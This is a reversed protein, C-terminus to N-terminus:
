AKRWIKESAQSPTNESGDNSSYTWNNNWTNINAAVVKEENTDKDIVYTYNAAEQTLMNRNTPDDVKSGMGYGDLDNTYESITYAPITKTKVQAGISSEGTSELVHGTIFDHKDFSTSEEFNGAKLTTRKLVSPYSLISTTSVQYESNAISKIVNFTEQRLGQDMNDFLKYENKVTSLVQNESNITEKSLLLGLSAYNKTIEYKQYNLPRSANSITVNTSQQESISIDLFEGVSLQNETNVVSSADLTNFNYITKLDSKGNKDTNEVTVRGYMVGPNPFESFYKIEQSYKTPFYSTVGSSQYNQSDKVPNSGETNYYYNTQSVDIGDTLELQKVRIGGGNKDQLIKNGTLAYELVLRPTVNICGEPNECEGRQKEVRITGPHHELGVISNYLRNLGGRYDWTYSLSSELILQNSSVSIVEVEKNKIDIRGQRNQCGEWGGHYDYRFCTWINLLTIGTQFKETFDISNTSGTENNVIIKLKGNNESFIFQLNNSFIEHSGLAEAITEDYDDSEYAIKFTSGMPTTLESLSWADPHEKHYGWDDKMSYDYLVSKKAYDFRYPPILEKEEGKNTFHVSNLTLRSNAISNDTKFEITNIAKSELDPYSTSIDLDDIINDYLEGRWSRDINLVPAVEEEISTGNTWLMIYTDKKFIKLRNQVVDTGNSQTQLDQPVDENKFLMIKDLQLLHQSKIDVYREYIYKGKFPKVNVHQYNEIKYEPDYFGFIYRGKETDLYQQSRTEYNYIETPTFNISPSLNSKEKVFVATHTRTRIKNLYYSERVGWAYSKSSEADFTIPEVEKTINNNSPGTWAIGDSWKGYEFMVWYGFDGDDPKNNGNVDFYDPGTVATLLWHTAYPTLTARELFKLNFDDEKRTYRTFQEKQYVPLSYHYTKGDLTTIKYAGIGDEPCSSRSFGYSNYPIIIKHHNNPIEANTFVEIYHGDKRRNNNDYLEHVKGDIRIQEVLSQSGFNLDDISNLADPIDITGSSVKLYSTYSNQFYFFLDNNTDDDTGDNSDYINKDSVNHIGHSRMQSKVDSKLKLTSAQYFEPIIAGGIGQGSVTYVDKTVFSPNTEKMQEERDYKYLSEGVDSLILFSPDSANYKEVFSGSYLAGFVSNIQQDFLWFKNKSYGVDVNIAGLPVVAAFGQYESSETTSNKTGLLNINSIKTAISLENSSSFNIGLARASGSGSNVDVGASSVFSTKGNIFSQYVSLNISPSSLTNRLLHYGVGLSAGATGVSASVGINSNLGKISAFAEVDWRRKSEGGNLSRFNTLSLRGGASAINSIGKSAGIFFSTVEGGADYLISYSIADKWDDAYGSISRNIAGPNLNWGLGVWSAEQDMAIGAHYALAIPYGGEPSPVNLLPLVYTFDGTNLNVMDTADVPEFSAAEPANPGQAKTTTYVLLLLLYISTKTFNM